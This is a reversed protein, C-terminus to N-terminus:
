LTTLYTTFWGTVTLIVLNCPTWTFLILNLRIWERGRRNKSRKETKTEEEKQKKNM